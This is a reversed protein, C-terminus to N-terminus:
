IRLGETRSVSENGSVECVARPRVILQVNHRLNIAAQGAIM